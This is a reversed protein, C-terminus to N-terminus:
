YAEQLLYINRDPGRFYMWRWKSGDDIVGSVLEIEKAELERRADDLSEVTFSVVPGHFRGRVADSPEFLEFMVDGPTELVAYRAYQTDNAPTGQRAVTLGMTDRFFAVTEDFKETCTGVWTIGQTVKM